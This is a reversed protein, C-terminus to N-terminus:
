SRAEVRYLRVLADTAAQVWVDATDASAPPIFATATVLADGVRRVGTISVFKVGDEKGSYWGVWLPTGYKRPVIDNAQQVPVPKAGEDPTMQANACLGTNKYKNWAAKAAAVTPYQYIATGFNARNGLAETVYGVGVTKAPGPTVTISTGDRNWGLTPGYLPSEKDTIVYPLNLTVTGFGTPLVLENTVITTMETNTPQREAANAPAALGLTLAVATAVVLPLVPIRM